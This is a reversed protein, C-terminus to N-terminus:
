ETHDGTIHTDHTKSNPHDEQTHNKMSFDNSTNDDKNNVHETTNSSTNNTDDDDNDDNRSSFIHHVCDRTISYIGHAIGVTIDKTLKALIFILGATGFIVGEIILLPIKAAKM